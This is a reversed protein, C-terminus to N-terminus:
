VTIEPQNIFYMTIRGRALACPRYVKPSIPTSVSDADSTTSTKAKWFSTNTTKALANKAFKWRQTQLDVMSLLQTAVM